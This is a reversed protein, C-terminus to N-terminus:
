KSIKKIIGNKTDIEVLDNDKLILTANKTGIICPKNMERAVIAAHCTVGGEDTIFGSAIKMALIFDPTTMPAVLFDGKKIKHGDKPSSLIKVKGRYIKKNGQSAVTGRLETSTNIQNKLEVIFENQKKKSIIGGKGNIFEIVFENSIRKNTEKLIYKRDSEIKELEETFLFKLNEYPIKYRKEFEHMIRAYFYNLRYDLFKRTDTWTTMVRMIKLIRKNERNISYKKLLRRYNENTFEDKKIIKKNEKELYNQKIKSIEKLKSIFYDADWYEPGDYGFPIWGFNNSLNRTINKIKKPNKQVALAGKILSKQLKSTYSKELPDALFIFDKEPLGLRKKATEKFKDGAYFWIQVTIIDYDIWIKKIKKVLKILDSFNKKSIDTKEFKKTFEIIEKRKLMEKKEIKTFYDAKDILCKVVYKEVTEVEKNLYISKQKYQGNEKFFNMWAHVIGIGYLKKVALSSQVISNWYAPCFMIARARMTVYKQIKNM